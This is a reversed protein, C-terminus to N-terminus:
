QNHYVSLYRSSRRYANLFNTSVDLFQNPGGTLLPNFDNIDLMIIPGAGTEGDPIILKIDIRLKCWQLGFFPEDLSYAVSKKLFSLAHDTSYRIKTAFFIHHDPPIMVSQMLAVISSAKSCPECM